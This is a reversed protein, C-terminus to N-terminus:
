ALRKTYVGEAKGGAKRKDCAETTQEGGILSRTLVSKDGRMKRQPHVETRARTMRRADEKRTERWETIVKKSWVHM